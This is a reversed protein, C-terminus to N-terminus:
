HRFHRIGTFVMTIGLKKAEAIVEEDRISGGPQVIANIGGAVALKVNDAFPFFADSALVAGNTKKDKKIAWRQEDPLGGQAQRLALMTSNVRNPQGTGMGLMVGDKAIVVANSKVHKCVKWAFELDVLMKASPKSGSVVRWKSKSEFIDDATQVLYGGFARTLELKSKLKEAKVVRMKASRKKLRELVDASYSPAIILEFFKGRMAEILELTPPVNLAVIGGFASVRDASFALEFAEVLNERSALGCPNAHKIIALTPEEFESVLKWAQHADAINNHSLEIGWLREFGAKGGDTFFASSQHPNEGYRLERFKKLNFRLDKKFNM